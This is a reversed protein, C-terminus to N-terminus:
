LTPVEIYLDHPSETLLYGKRFEPIPQSETLIVTNASLLRFNYENASDRGGFEQDFYRQVAVDLEDLLQRAVDRPVRYEALLGELTAEGTFAAGYFIQELGGAIFDALVSYDVFSATGLYHEITTEIREGFWKLDVIIHRPKPNFRRQANTQRLSPPLKSTTASQM